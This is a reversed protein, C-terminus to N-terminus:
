RASNALVLGTKALYTAGDQGALQRIRKTDELLVSCNYRKLQAVWYETEQENVHHYGGQGPLANTMVIFKGCCLSSLLNDLYTEEIHEVVEQCHVLDVKTVVKSKTLDLYIAPYVASTVNELMGDVALVRCGLQNFYASSYARGCGLDLVSEVSFRRVLYTWVSPAFTFPDGEIINGGVHANSPDTADRLGQYTM